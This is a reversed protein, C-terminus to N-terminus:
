IPKEELKLLLSILSQHLGNARFQEKTLSKEDPSTEEKERTEPHKYIYFNPMAEWPHKCSVTGCVRLAEWDADMM